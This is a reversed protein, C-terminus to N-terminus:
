KKLAIQKAEKIIDITSQPTFGKNKIYGFWCKELAGTIGFVTRFQGYKIHYQGTRQCAMGTYSVM